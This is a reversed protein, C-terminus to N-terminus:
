PEDQEKKQFDSCALSSVLTLIALIYKHVTMNSKM